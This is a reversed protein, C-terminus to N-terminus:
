YKIGYHNAILRNFISEPIIRKIYVAMKQILSGVIYRQKPNNKNVIKLITKALLVPDQGNTEDREFIRLTKEFQEKYPSNEAISVIRTEVNRTKFDGPNVVVMKINFPRIETRMAASVAEIAFKSASYVGQYPMGTLGGISSINIIKGGGQQRMHPIVAKMANIWGFYNTDMQQRIIEDPTDEFPGGSHMGANNILVDIRGENNIIKQVADAITKPQTLEIFV